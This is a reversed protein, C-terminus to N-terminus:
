RSLKEVKVPILLENEGLVLLIAAHEEHSSPPSILWRRLYNGGLERLGLLVLCQRSEQFPGVYVRLNQKLRVLANGEPFGRGGGLSM